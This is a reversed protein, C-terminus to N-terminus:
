AADRSPDLAPRPPLCEEEETDTLTRLHGFQFHTLSSSKVPTVCLGCRRGPGVEPEAM